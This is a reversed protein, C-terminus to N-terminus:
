ETAPSGSATSPGSGADLGEGAVGAPEPTPRVPGDHVRWWILLGVCVVIAVLCAWQSGTLGSFRREVRLFDTLVRGSSYWIGFVCTLVGPRRATRMLWLLLLVLGMTLLFDYLATQHVGIGRGLVTGDPGFLTAGGATVVQQQGGYLPALCGQAGSSCDYGALNGGHYQFALLWDTPKGLHDGIILDGIRGIVIGVSLPMAAADFAALASFRGRRVVPISAIIWGIIGGVLSIGGRYVALVDVVSHFQSLHALVYGVRAGVISGILGWLVLSSVQEESVGRKPGEHMFILSGCLYGVAIGVGHPSIAFSSGFRFRDLVKWGIAAFVHLDSGLLALSRM